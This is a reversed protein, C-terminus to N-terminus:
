SSFFLLGVTSIYCTLLSHKMARQGKYLFVHEKYKFLSPLELFDLGCGAQLPIASFTCSYLTCVPCRLCGSWMEGLVGGEEKHTKTKACSGTCLTRVVLAARLSQSYFVLPTDNKAARQYAAVAHFRSHSPGGLLILSQLSSFFQACFYGLVFLVQLCATCPACPQFFALMVPCPSPQLRPRRCYAISTVNVSWVPFFLRRGQCCIGQQHHPQHM